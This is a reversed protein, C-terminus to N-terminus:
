PSPGLADFPAPNRGAFSISGVPVFWAAFAPPRATRCTAQHDLVPGSLGILSADLGVYVPHGCPLTVVRHSRDNPSVPEEARNM